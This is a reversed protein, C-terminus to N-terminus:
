GPSTEPLGLDTQTLIVLPHSFSSARSDVHLAFRVFHEYSGQPYGSSFDFVPPILATDTLMQLVVRSQDTQYVFVRKARLWGAKASLSWFLARFVPQFDNRSATAEDNQARPQLFPDELCRFLCGQIRGSEAKGILTFIEM